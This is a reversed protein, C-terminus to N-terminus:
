NVNADSRFCFNNNWCDGHILIGFQGAANPASLQKMLPEFNDKLRKLLSIEDESILFETAKDIAGTMM